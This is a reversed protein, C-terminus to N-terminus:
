SKGHPCCIHFVLTLELWLPEHSMKMETFNEAEMERGQGENGDWGSGDMFQLILEVLMSLTRDSIVVSARLDICGEAQDYSTQGSIGKLHVRHYISSLGLEHLRPNEAPSCLFDNNPRGNWFLVEWCPSDHGHIKISNCFTYFVGEWKLCHTHMILICYIIYSWNLAQKFAYFQLSFPSIFYSRVLM